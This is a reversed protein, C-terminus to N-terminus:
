SRPRRAVPSEAASLTAGYCRADCRPRYRKRPPRRLAKSAASGRRAQPPRPCARRPQQRLNVWTPPRRSPQQRLPNARLHLPYTVAMQYSARGPNDSASGGLVHRAMLLLADDDDLREGSDQRLKKMAERFTALTEAAVDFRLIHRRASALPVDSPRDGRAHGLVLKEIQRVTRGQAADIWARETEATAVRSLERV